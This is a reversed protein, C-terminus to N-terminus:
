RFLVGVRLAVTFQALGYVNVSMQDRVELRFGTHRTRRWDVGIGGNAVPVVASHAAMALGGGATVFPRVVRSSDSTSFHHYGNGSIVVLDASRQAYCDSFHPRCDRNPFHIVAFEGGGGASGRQIEGATGAGWALPPDAATSFGLPGAYLFGIEDTTSQAFTTAPAILAAAVPLLIVLLVHRTKSM